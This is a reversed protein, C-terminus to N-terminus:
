GVMSFKRGELVTHIEDSNNRVWETQPIKYIYNLHVLVSMVVVSGDIM